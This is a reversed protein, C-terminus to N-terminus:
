IIVYLPSLSKNKLPADSIERTNLNMRLGLFQQNEYFDIRPTNLDSRAKKPINPRDPM